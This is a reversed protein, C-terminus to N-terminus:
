QPPNHQGPNEHHEPVQKPNHTANDHMPQPRVDHGMNRYRVNHTAHARWDAHGREWGQFRHLRSPDMVMWVNGPGLYYYQTGVVGVYESGDWTYSDPVPTAVVPASVVISPATVVVTGAAQGSYALGLAIGMATVSIVSKSYAKM